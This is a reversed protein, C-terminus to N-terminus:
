KKRHVCSSITLLPCKEWPESAVEGVRDEVWVSEMGIESRSRLSTVSRVRSIKVM